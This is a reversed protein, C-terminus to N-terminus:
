NVDNKDISIQGRNAMDIILNNLVLNITNGIVIISKAFDEANIQIMQTKISPNLIIMESKKEINGKLELISQDKTLLELVFSIDRPATSEASITESDKRKERKKRKM